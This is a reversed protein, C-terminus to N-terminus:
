TAERRRTRFDPEWKMPDPHYATILYIIGEDISCVIHLPTNGPDYLILCSPYPYDSPYDEIIEGNDFASYIDPIKIERIKMQEAAHATVMINSREAAASRIEKIDPM